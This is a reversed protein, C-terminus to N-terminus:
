HSICASCIGQEQIGHVYSSTEHFKKVLELLSFLSAGLSSGMWFIEFIQYSMVHTRNKIGEPSSLPFNRVM